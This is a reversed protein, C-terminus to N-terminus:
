PRRPGNGNGDARSWRQEDYLVYSLCAFMVVDEEYAALEGPEMPRSPRKRLDRGLERWMAKRQERSGHWLEDMCLGLWGSTTQVYGGGGPVRVRLEVMQTEEAPPAPWANCQTSRAAHQKSRASGAGKGSWVFATGAPAPALGTCRCGQSSQFQPAMREPPKHSPRPTRPSAPRCAIWRRM